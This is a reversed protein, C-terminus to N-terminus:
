ESPKRQGIVRQALISEAKLLKQRDIKAWPNDQVGVQYRRVAEGIEPAPLAEALALQMITLMERAYMGGTLDVFSNESRNAKRPFPGEM